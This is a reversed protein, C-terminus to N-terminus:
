CLRQAMKFTSEDRLEGKKGYFGSKKFIIIFIISTYINKSEQSM